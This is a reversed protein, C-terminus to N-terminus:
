KKEFIEFSNKGSQKVKYLAADAEKYLQKINNKKERNIYVPTIGISSSIKVSTSNENNRIVRNTKVCLSKIKDLAKEDYEKIFLVFEDGGWRGVIDNEFIDNIDKALEKLVSDGKIHGLNDNVKKFYDIDILALASITYVEANRIYTEVKHEFAKRNYLRTISDREAKERLFKNLQRHYRLKMRYVLVITAIVALIVFALIFIIEKVYIYVIDRIEIEKKDTVVHKYVIVDKESESIKNIGKNIIKFLTKDDDNIYFCLEMNKRIPRVIINPFVKKNIQTLVTYLDAYSYIEPLSNIMELVEAMTEKVVFNGSYKKGVVSQPLALVKDESSNKNSLIQLPISMYSNSMRYARTVQLYTIDINPIFIDIENNKLKEIGSLISDVKIFKFELGLKEGIKRLVDVGIGTAMNRQTDYYSFPESNGVYAVRIKESKNIYELESNSLNIEAKNATYFHKNYLEYKFDPKNEDIYSIAENIINILQTNGKTTALYHAREGIKRIIKQGEKLNVDNAIIGDIESSMLADNLEESSDYIKLNINLENEKCYNEFISIGRENEKFVGINLYDHIDKKSDNNTAIVSYLNGIPLSSLEYTELAQSNYYYVGMLDIDGNKLKEKLENLEGDIFEYKWGTYKQIEILYDYIYGCPKGKENYGSMGKVAPLGVKIKEIEKANIDTWSFVSIVICVIALLKKM